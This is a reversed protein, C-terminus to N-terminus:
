KFNDLIKQYKEQSRRHLPCVIKRQRDREEREQEPRPEPLRPDM